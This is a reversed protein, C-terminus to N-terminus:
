IKKAQYYAKRREKIKEKNNEYYKRRYEKYYQKRYSKWFLEKNFIKLIRLPTKIDEDRGEELAKLDKKIQEESYENMKNVMM